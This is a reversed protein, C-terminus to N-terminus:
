LEKVLQLDQSLREAKDAQEKIIKDVTKKNLKM